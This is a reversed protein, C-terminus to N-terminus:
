FIDSALEPYVLFRSSTNGDNTNGFGPKPKDVILGMESKCRHQIPASRQKVNAKDNEDSLNWKKVELKHSTIVWTILPKLLVVRLPHQPNPTTPLWKVSSIKQWILLITSCSDNM